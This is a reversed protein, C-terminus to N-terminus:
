LLDSKDDQGGRAVLTFPNAPEEAQWLTLCDGEAVALSSARIADAHEFTWTLTADIDGKTHSVVREDPIFATDESIGELRMGAM